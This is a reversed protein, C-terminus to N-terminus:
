ANMLRIITGLGPMLKELLGEGNTGLPGVSLGGIPIFVSVLQRRSLASCNIDWVNLAFSSRTHLYSESSMPGPDKNAKTQKKCSRIARAVDMYLNRREGM